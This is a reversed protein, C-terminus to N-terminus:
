PVDGPQQLFPYTPLYGVLFGWVLNVITLSITFLIFFLLYPRDLIRLTSSIKGKILHIIFITGISGICLIMLLFASQGELAGFSQVIGLGFGSVMLTITRGRQKKFKYDGPLNSIPEISIIIWIIAIIGIFVMGHSLFEDIFYIFTYIDESTVIGV